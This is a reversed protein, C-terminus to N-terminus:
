TVAQMNVLNNKDAEGGTFPPVRAGDLWRDRATGLGRM